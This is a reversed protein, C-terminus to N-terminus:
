VQEKGKQEDAERHPFIRKLLQVIFVIFLLSALTGGMGVVTIVLGHSFNEMGGM